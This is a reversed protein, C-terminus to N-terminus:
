NFFFFFLVSNCLSFGDGVGREREEKRNQVGDHLFKTNPATAAM